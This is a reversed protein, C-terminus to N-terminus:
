RVLRRRLSYLGLAASFLLISSAPEPTGAQASAVVCNNLASVECVALLDAESILRREGSSMFAQMVAHGLNGQSGDLVGQGGLQFIHAGAYPLPATLPIFGSPQGDYANYAPDLGLAHGIEHIVVSLLDFNGAASGTPSGYMLGTTMIGICSAAGNCLAANAYLTQFSAYESNDTPTVDAFWNPNNQNRIVVGAEAPRYPSVVSFSKTSTKALISDNGTNGWGYDLTVTYNDPILAEWYQAAAQFIADLNGGGAMTGPASGAVIGTFGIESGLGVPVLNISV